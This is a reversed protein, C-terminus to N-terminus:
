LSPAQSRGEDRAGEQHTAAYLRLAANLRHEWSEGQAQFWALVEADVHITVPVTHRPERLGARTFFSEPLPPIDSTDITEDTLSDVRDWDTASPKKMANDNM